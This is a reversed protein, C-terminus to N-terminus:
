NIEVKGNSCQVTFSKLSNWDDAKEIENWEAVTGDFYLTSLNKCNSFLNKGLKVVSNSLYVTELASCSVFAYDSIETLGKGLKVTVLAYMYEFANPGFYVVSDPLVVSKALRSFAEDGVTLTGSKIVYDEGVQRADILHNGIYLAGDEYLEAKVDDDFSLYFNGLDPMRTISDPLTLNTLKGCNEFAGKGITTVGDPVVLTTLHSNGRFAYEGISEVGQPITFGDTLDCFTFAYDGIAKISGDSPIVSNTSGNILTGTTKDILCNDESKYIANQPDVEIANVWSVGYFAYNDMNEVSAPITIKRATNGSYAFSGITKIGNDVALDTLANKSQICNFFAYDGVETVGSGSPIATLKQCEYFAYDGVTTVSDAIEVQELKGCKFFAGDGIKEVGDPIVVSTIDSNKFTFAPIGKIGSPLTPEGSPKKGDIYLAINDKSLVRPFPYPEDSKEKFANELPNACREGFSIGCWSKLDKVNVALSECNSLYFASDGVTKLGTGFTISALGSGWFADEGIHEVSDSLTVSDLNSYNNFAFDPIEIVGDPIVLDRIREGAIYLNGYSSGFLGPVGLYFVPNAGTNEFEIKCFDAVTGTYFVSGISICSLFANSEIVKVSNGFTVASLRGCYEFAKERIVTVSIPIVVGTLGACNDFAQEGIETVPKGDIESEIIVAKLENIKEGSVYYSQGDESLTYRIDDKYVDEYGPRYLCIRCEGGIFTHEEKDKALDHGCQAAYYHHTEDHSLKNDFSHGTAKILVSDFSIPHVGDEDSFYRGCETCEYHEEYGAATCDASKYEYYKLTHETHPKRYGCVSCNGYEDFDHTGEDTIEAHGCNSDRWHEVSDSSWKDSFTHEHAGCGVFAFLASVVFICVIIFKIVNIKVKM